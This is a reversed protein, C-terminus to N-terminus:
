TAQGRTWVQWVGYSRYAMLPLDLRGEHIEYLEQLLEVAEDGNNRGGKIRM